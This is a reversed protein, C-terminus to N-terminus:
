NINLSLILFVINGRVQVLKTFRQKDEPPSGRNAPYEWDLDLGDFGQSRLYEISSKVFSDIDSDTKVANTFPGSGHTWGGIALLVKLNPNKNKLDLTREFM